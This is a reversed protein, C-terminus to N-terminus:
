ERAGITDAPHGRLAFRAPVSTAAVALIAAGAVILAYTLPSVYPLASGTMGTSFASITVLTAATGLLVSVAVVSLTELRLMRLIQRRTTGVLRLLAFERARDSTAMALTNVVAILTFAIILGMAVYNIEAGAQEREAAVTAQDAVMVGPFNRLAKALGAASSGAVLVTDSLPNDVHAAMLGRALTLDGFGLNRTYTAIVKLTAPTGDGLTLGIRDGVTFGLKESVAVTDEGLLDISGSRVGLSMTRELGDPTVAQVGYKALGIRVTTHLVETVATVGPAHRVAEAAAAPVHPGLVHAARTGDRLQGAAAHGTTDQVFLITCTMTVMLTLPTIVSALRRAGTRLNAAALYGGAGSARLLLAPVAVLIRAVVPGLLAVAVTWILATLMTVPSSAAESSLTSLVITLTVGGAVCVLGALVRVVPLRAPGLAADGLAEVPRVRATRRASVRAAAWAAAVTAAVAVVIPFPSVVLELNVPMAGLAVFRTRLWFALGIGLASGIAGAPLGILLAEGGIMKRIQGPTAAVARLLAIERLRQQISLAFTGVVVIIAVLLSTGGLAGGLSILKIRAKDANLFELPGRADGTYAVAAAGGVTVPAQMSAGEADAAAGATGSRAAAPGQASADKLAATVDVAPFVGIASVLGPHGALRRAEGTHFFLTPQNELAQATVGVVRYVRPEATSQITVRFGTRIGAAADAVVEDDAKPARGEALTFPTLAASEWGHGLFPVSATPTSAASGSADRGAATGSSVRTVATTSRSADRGAATGSSVRTVYAPFTVEPVVSTVGPVARLRDALGAAIWAREAIPKVKVKVKDESKRITERVNQDGAVVVPTGAYRAAAITGRLGTELLMGFACVLAAACLLALFAGAFSAKRHRLNHLAFSIM